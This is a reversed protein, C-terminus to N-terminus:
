SQGWWYKALISNIGDCIVKPIKFLSISYTPIAQAVTKILVERVAKSIHKEKWGMVKNTIRELLGKFTSVKSQGGVM